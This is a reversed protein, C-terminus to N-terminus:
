AKHTVSDYDDEDDTLFDFDTERPPDNQRELDLTTLDVPCSQLFELITKPKEETEIFQDKSEM